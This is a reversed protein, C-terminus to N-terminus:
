IIDYYINKINTEIKKANELYERIKERLELSNIKGSEYLEYYFELKTKFIIVSYMDDLIKFEEKKLYPIKNANLINISSIKKLNDLIKKDKNYKLQEDIKELIAINNRLEFFAKILFDNKQIILQDNQCIIKKESNAKEDKYFKNAFKSNKIKSIFLKLFINIAQSLLIAILVSLGIYFYNM